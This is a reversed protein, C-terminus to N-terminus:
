DNKYKLESKYKYVNETVTLFVLIFIIVGPSRVTNIFYGIKPVSFKYVGVIQSTNVPEPDNVDNNDGKTIYNGDATIGVIRHIVTTENLEYAAIDGREADKDNLDIFCISGTMIEPEMSGSVVIFSRINLLYIVVTIASIIVILTLLINRMAHCMKIM